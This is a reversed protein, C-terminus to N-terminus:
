RNIIRRVRPLHVFVSHLAAQLCRGYKVVGAHRPWYVAFSPSKAKIAPARAKSVMREDLHAMRRGDLEQKRM